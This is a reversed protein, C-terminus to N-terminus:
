FPKKGIASKNAKVFTNIINMSKDVSQPLNNMGMAMNKKMQNKMIGYQGCDVRILLLITSGRILVYEREVGIEEETAQGM